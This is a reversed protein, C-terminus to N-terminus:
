SGYRIKSRHEFHKLYGARTQYNQPSYPNHTPTTPLAIRFNEKRRKRKEKRKSIGRNTGQNTALKM